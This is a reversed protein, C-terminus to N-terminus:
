GESLEAAADRHPRNLDDRPIGGNVVLPQGSRAELVLDATGPRFALAADGRLLRDLPEGILRARWGRAVRATPDGRLLANLDGRTALLSADIRLDRALQSVWASALSVAPKLDRDVDDAPPLRIQEPALALGARVADLLEAARAPALGRDLGRVHRLEGVSAPPRHAIGALALDPLVTRPPRDLTAATRERWAAVAQAVGRARGRLSRADKIRWWATDPDQPGRPRQLLLACEELAWTLRGCEELRSALEARLELLHAVDSAAYALQDAGLPRRTWDALRDAKPLRRGLIREILSGLSPSVMGLFGAALQTDFLSPPVVGCARELVELDQDAAHAVATGPGSLVSALPAPDVSLPDVLALGGEWALQVLALRPFYTRERHFETDIAYFPADVLSEVVADLAGPTAVWTPSGTEGHGDDM